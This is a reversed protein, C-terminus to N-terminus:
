PGSKKVSALKDLMSKAQEAAKTSPFREVLQGLIQRAEGYSQSALLDTARSLLIPAVIPDNGYRSLLEQELAAVRAGQDRQRRLAWWKVYMLKVRYMECRPDELARDIDLLIEQASNGRSLAYYYLWTARSFDERAPQMQLVRRAEGAALPYNGSDLWLQVIEFGLALRTARDDASVFQAAKNLCEVAVHAQSKGCKAAAERYFTLESFAAGRAEAARRAIMMAAYPLEFRFLCSDSLELLQEPTNMWSPLIATNVPNSDSPHLLPLVLVYDHTGHFSPEALALAQGARAVATVHSRLKLDYYHTLFSKEASSLNDIVVPGTFLKASTQLFQKAPAVPSAAAKKKGAGGPLEGAVVSLQTGTAKSLQQQMQGALFQAAKLRGEFALFGADARYKQRMGDFLTDGITMAKRDDAAVLAAEFAAPNLKAEAASPEAARLMGTVALLISLSLPFSKRWRLRWVHPQDTPEM